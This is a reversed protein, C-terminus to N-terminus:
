RPSCAAGTSKHKIILDELCVSISAGFAYYMKDQAQIGPGTAVGMANWNGTATNTYGTEVSMTLNHELFGWMGHSLYKSDPVKDYEIEGQRLYTRILAAPTISLKTSINYLNNTQFTPTTAQNATTKLAANTYDNKMNLSVHEIFLTYLMDNVVNRKQEQMQKVEILKEIQTYTPSDIVRELQLKAKDKYPRKAIINGSEIKGIGPLSMLEMTTASNIDILVTTIKDAIKGYTDRNLGKEM